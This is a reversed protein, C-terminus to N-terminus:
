GLAFRAVEHTDAIGLPDELDDGAADVHEVANQRGPSRTRARRERPLPAEIEAIGREAGVRTREIRFAGARRALPERTGIDAVEDRLTLSEPQQQQAQMM